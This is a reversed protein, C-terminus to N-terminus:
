VWMRCVGRIPCGACKVVDRRSPCQGSIGLHCLAFDYKVPDEPDLQALRATIELATKYSLDKRRTLGLFGSLRHIHTDLPIVLSSKPVKWFGFDVGDPGRVMWRLFLNLRKCASGREPSALLHKLRRSPTRQGVFPTLDVDVIAAVFRAQALRSDGAAVAFCKEYLAGLSGHRELARGAGYLLCALDRTDTMRYSFAPLQSKWKRPSLARAAAAPSPGLEELFRALRPKFLDARGYAISSALLAAIEVDDQARYRHPLEIPDAAIRRQAPLEVLLADLAPKLFAARRWM